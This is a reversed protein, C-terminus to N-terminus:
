WYLHWVNGLDNQYSGIHEYGTPVESGTPLVLVDREEVPAGKGAEVDLWLTPVNEQHGVLMVRPAAPFRIRTAGSSGLPFKYIRRM